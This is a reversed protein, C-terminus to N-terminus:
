LNDQIKRFAQVIANMDNKDGLMIQQSIWMGEEHCAKECVPCSVNKYSVSDPIAYSFFKKEQFSPQRYVPEPYGMFCPVGEAALLTAFTSKSTNKFKSKDYKFPFLHYSHKTIEPGKRLPIIGEVEKKLLESLYLGNENRRILDEELRELQVLLLAAQFQTLRYNCGLNYHEYWAGGSKRGVNHLSNITEYLDDDNTVAIGGEGSTMNKSSQFSFCGVNGISGLKKGKYEAGHAHCADEIVILHHKRAIAMIEDMACAHGGFHVPIIVKTRPTIAAEIKAPDINYSDPDIDVFVPVCNLEVVVSATAIFTMPPVIVEDGPKVGSAMLSLRLAVSGNVTTVAHKVGLYEAFNREFTHVPCNQDPTTGWVGSELVKLIADAEKRGFVPWPFQKTITKEGGYYALKQKEM